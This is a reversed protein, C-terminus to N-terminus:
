IQRTERAATTGMQVLTWWQAAHQWGRISVQIRVCVSVRLVRVHLVILYSAVAPRVLCVVAAVNIKADRDLHPGARCESWECM